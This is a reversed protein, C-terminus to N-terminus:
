KKYKKNYKKVNNYEGIAILHNLFDKRTRINPKVITYVFGSSVNYAFTIEEITSKGEKYLEYIEICMSLPHTYSRGLHEDSRITDDTIIVGYKDIIYKYIDSDIELDELVNTISDGCSYRYRVTSVISIDNYFKNRNNFIVDNITQPRLHSYKEILYQFTIGKRYDKYISTYDADTVKEEIKREIDKYDGEILPIDLTKIQNETNILHATNENPVSLITYDGVLKEIISLRKIIDNQNELIKNLLEENNDKDLTLSGDKIEIKM